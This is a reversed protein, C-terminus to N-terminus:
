QFAVGVSVDHAREEGDKAGTMKATADDTTSM